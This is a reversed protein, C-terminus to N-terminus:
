KADIAVVIENTQFYPSDFYAKTTMWMRRSKSHIPKPACM